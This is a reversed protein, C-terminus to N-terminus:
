HLRAYIVSFRIEEMEDYQQWIIVIAHHLTQVFNPTNISKFRVLFYNYLLVFVPLYM